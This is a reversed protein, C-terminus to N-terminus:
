LDDDAFPLYVLRSAITSAGEVFVIGRDAIVEFGDFVPTDIVETSDEVIVTEQTDMLKTIQGDSDFHWVGSDGSSAAAPNSDTIGASFLGGGEPLAEVHYISSWYSSDTYNDPAPSGTVIVPKLPTAGLADLSSYPQGPHSVGSLIWRPVDDDLNSRTNAQNLYVFQDNASSRLVGVSNYQGVGRISIEYSSNTASFDFQEGNLMLLKAPQDDKFQWISGSGSELRPSDLTKLSAHVLVSGDDLTRLLSVDRFVTDSMGPVSDGESILRKYSGNDYRAISLFGNGVTMDRLSSATNSVTRFRHPCIAENLIAGSEVFVEAEFIISGDKRVFYRSLDASSSGRKLLLRCGDDQLPASEIRVTDFSRSGPAVLTFDAETRAILSSQLTGESVEVALTGGDHKVQKYGGYIVQNGDIELSIDSRLVAEMGTDDSSLVANATSSGDMSFIASVSGDSGLHASRSQVSAVRMTAPFGPFADGTKVVLKPAELKGSWLGSYAIGDGLSVGPVRIGSQFVIDGSDNVQFSDANLSGLTEDTLGPASEGRAAIILARGNIGQFSGTNDTTSDSEDSEGTQDDQEQGTGTDNTSSGSTDDTDESEGGGTTDENTADSSDGDASDNTDNASEDTTSNNSSDSSGGGGGGCASLWIISLLLSAVTLCRKTRHGSMFLSM